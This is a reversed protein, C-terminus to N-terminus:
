RIKSINWSNRILNNNEGEEENQGSEGGWRHRYDEVLKESAPLWQETPTFAKAMCQRHRYTIM